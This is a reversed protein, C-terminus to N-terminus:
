DILDFYEDPWLERFLMRAKHWLNMTVEQNDYRVNVYQGLMNPHGIGEAGTIFDYLSVALPELTHAVNSYPNQRLEPSDALRLPLRKILRTQDPTLNPTEM